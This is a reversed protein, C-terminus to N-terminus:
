SPRRTTASDSVNPQRQRPFAHPDLVTIRHIVEAPVGARRASKRVAEPSAAEYVCFARRGDDTVYSHLWVAGLDGDAGVTAEATKGALFEDMGDILSREVLYRPM